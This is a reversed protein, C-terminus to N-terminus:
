NYTLNSLLAGCAGSAIAVMCGGILIGMALDRVARRAFWYIAVYFLAVGFVTLAIAAPENSPLLVLSGAFALLGVIVGTTWAILLGGAVAGWSVNRKQDVDM